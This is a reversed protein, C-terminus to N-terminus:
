SFSCDPFAPMELSDLCFAVCEGFRYVPVRSMDQRALWLTLSILAPLQRPPLPLRPMESECVHCWRQDCLEPVLQEGIRYVRPRLRGTRRDSGGFRPM